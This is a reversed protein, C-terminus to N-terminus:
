LIVEKPSNLIGAIHVANKALERHEVIFYLFPRNFELFMEPEPPLSFPVVSFSTAAAAEVGEMTVDITAKHNINGVKVQGLAMRSFNADRAFAEDVGPISKLLSTLENAMTSNFKPITLGAFTKPLEDAGLIAQMVGTDVDTLSTILEDPNSGKKPLVFVMSFGEDEFPVSVIKAGDVEILGVDLDKSLMDVELEQGDTTTFKDKIPDDFAELWNSKFYLANVLVVLTNQKISGDPM